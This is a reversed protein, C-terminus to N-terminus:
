KFREKFQKLQALKMSLTIRNSLKPIQVGKINIDKNNFFAYAINLLENNIIKNLENIRQERKDLLIEFQNNNKLNFEFSQVNIQNNSIAQNLKQIFENAVDHLDISVNYNYCSRHQEIAFYGKSNSNSTSYKYVIELTSTDIKGDKNQGEIHFIFCPKTAIINFYGAVCHNMIESEKELQKKSNLQTISFGNISLKNFNPIIFSQYHNIENKIQNLQEDDQYFADEILQFKHVIENYRNHFIETEKLLTSLPITAKTLKNFKDFYNLDEKWKHQNIQKLVDLRVDGSAYINQYFFACFDYLNMIEEKVLEKLLESKQKNSISNKSKKCHLLKKQYQQYLKDNFYKSKPNLTFVFHQKYFHSLATRNEINIFPFAYRMHIMFLFLQLENNNKPIQENKSNILTHILFNIHFNGSMQSVFSYFIPVSKNILHMGVYRMLLDMSQSNLSKFFNIDKKNINKILSYNSVFNINPQNIQNVLNDYYYNDEEVFSHVNHFDPHNYLHIGVFDKENLQTFFRLIDAINNGIFQSNIIDKESYKGDKIKESFYQQIAFNCKELYASKLLNIDFKYTNNQLESNDLDIDINFNYKLDGVNFEYLSRININNNQELANMFPLFAYAFPRSTSMELLIRFRKLLESVYPIKDLEFILNVRDLYHIHYNIMNHFCGYKFYLCFAHGFLLSKANKSLNLVPLGYKIFNLKIIKKFFDGKLDGLSNSVKKDFLCLIEKLGAKDENGVHKYYTYVSQFHIKNDNELKFLPQIVNFIETSLPPINLKSGIESLQHKLFHSNSLTLSPNLTAKDEAINYSHELDNLKYSHYLTYAGNDKIFSHAAGAGENEHNQYVIHSKYISSIVYCIDNMYQHSIKLIAINKPHVYYTLKVQRRAIIENINAHNEFLQIVSEKTQNTINLFEQNIYKKIFTACNKKFLENNNDTTFENVINKSVLIDSFSICEQHCKFYSQELNIELKSNQQDKLEIDITNANTDNLDIDLFM